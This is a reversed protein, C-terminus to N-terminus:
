FQQVVPVVVTHSPVDEKPNNLYKSSVIYIASVVYHLHVFIGGRGGGEVVHMKAKHRWDGITSM